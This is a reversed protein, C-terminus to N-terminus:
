WLDAYGVGNFYHSIISQAEAGQEALAYAGWQSMGVGHGFGRGSFVIKGDSIEINDILTSKLKGAGIHVRFSPASVEKGNVILYKARGSEGKEGLEVTKAPGTKVGCDACAAAVEAPTFSATWSKVDEPAKDSDYSNVVSLYEPDKSKYDLSVTPLETIGGSHAHFWAEPFEGEYSMVIGRTEDVAQRVNDNINSANYAQAEAVNTSIDAGEHVSKNKELYKMTYTRALIAQAKLAEIPWDNRMEGAVVGELYDEIGMEGIEGSEAMYVSLVPAGDSDLNISRPMNPTEAENAMNDNDGSRMCGTMMVALITLFCMFRYVIIMEQM